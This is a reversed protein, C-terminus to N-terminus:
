KSAVPSNESDTIVDCPDSELVANFNAEAWSFLLKREELSGPNAPVCRSSRGASVRNALPSIELTLMKCNAPSSPILQIRGVELSADYDSGGKVDKKAVILKWGAASPLFFLSYSGPPIDLGGIKIKRNTELVPTPADNLWLSDFAVVRGFIPGEDPALRTTYRVRLALSDALGLSQSVESPSQVRHPDLCPIQNDLNQARASVALAAIAGLIGCVSLISQQCKAIRSLGTAKM